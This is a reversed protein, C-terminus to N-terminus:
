TLSDALLSVKNNVVEVVGASINYKLEESVTKIRVQGARLTGVLAAHNELIEFGGDIGPLIVSIADGAFAKADPTIL